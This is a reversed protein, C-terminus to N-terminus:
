KSSSNQNPQTMSNGQTNQDENSQYTTEQANNGEFFELLEEIKGELESLQNELALATREGNALDSFAQAFDNHSPSGPNDSHPM